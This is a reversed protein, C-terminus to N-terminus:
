WRPVSAAREPAVRRAYAVDDRVRYGCEVWDAHMRALADDDITVGLGPLPPVAIAGDRFSLASANVVDDEQRKWPVHTDCAYGLSPTAAAAHVMAALSIGLHSNSHMALSFGFTQAMTGLQTTAALGGWSHPDALVIDVAETAVAAPIDAFAVVCMNTALPVRTRRRVRAMAEVGAVPDELYELSGELEAAVRHATEETWAANPDLRIPVGPLADALARVTAVDVDPPLAGGKVKLSRFGHRDIMRTAQEVMGAPDLAEGWDDGPQGDHGSPKYFLYGAFEVAERQAGGLLDVVPRDILKGHLDLAAMEFPAYVTDVADTAIMWAMGHEADTSGGHAEVIRRRVAALDFADVGILAEGARILEDVHSTDGYTEGLGVLGVSTRVQVIARLVWPQHMGTANLLPPDRFAVPTVTVAEIRLDAASM